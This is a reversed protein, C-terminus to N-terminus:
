LWVTLATWTAAYVALVLTLVAPKIKKTSAHMWSSIGHAALCSFIPILPATFRAGTAIPIYWAFLLISCVLWLLVMSRAVSGRMLLVLAGIAFLPLGILVRAEVYPAPGLSRMIVYTEIGIGKSERAILDRVSHTKFFEDRTEAVTVGSAKIIGPDVFDDMYMFYNNVNYLPNDYVRVNRVLLPSSIVIWSLVVVGISKWRTSSAM